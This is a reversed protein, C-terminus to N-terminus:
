KAVVRTDCIRDHLARKEEDFAAMIFGILLIASSLWTAFHRAIARKLTLRSGDAMVVKLGLAMKGPTAQFKYVFFGDFTVGVALQLLFSGTFYAILAPGVTEPAQFAFPLMMVVNVIWLIISDIVKAGARAWFGAYRVGQRTLGTERLRHTFLEKCSACVFSNGFQVMESYPQQQGCESCFGAGSGATSVDVGAAAARGAEQISGYPQWSALGERWVLTGPQIAGSAVLETFQLESVPGIQRDEVAYYWNM